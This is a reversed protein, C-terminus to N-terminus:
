LNTNIEKLHIEPKGNKTTTKNCNKKINKIVTFAIIPIKYLIIYKNGNKSFFVGSLIMTILVVFIAFTTNLLSKLLEM